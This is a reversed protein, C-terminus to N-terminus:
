TSLYMRFFHQWFKDAVKKVPVEICGLSCHPYACALKCPLFNEVVAHLFHNPPTWSSPHGQGFIGLTPLEMAIAFHRLGNDNGLFFDAKRFNRWVQELNRFIQIEAQIQKKQLLEALKEVGEEEGPGGVLLFDFQVPPSLQMQLFIKFILEAFKEVPWQKYIRRSIPSILIQFRNGPKKKWRKLFPLFSQNQFHLQFNTTKIGLPQLLSLKHIVSYQLDSSYLVKETYAWSRFRFAFGIRKKAGIFWCFFASKPTSMFDLTVDYNEKRLRWLQALLKRKNKPQLVTVQNVLPSFRFIQHNPALTLFHIEASPFRQKLAFLAPTVLLVDGIRKLQIALIKM